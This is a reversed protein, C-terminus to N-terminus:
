EDYGSNQTLFAEREGTLRSECRLQNAGRIKADLSTGAAEVKCDATKRKIWARQLPRLEDQRASTLSNWVANIRQVALDNEAKAESLTAAGQEALAALEDGRARDEERRAQAESAQGEARANLLGDSQFSAAVVQGLARFIPVDGGFEALLTEGDDTPQVTYEFSTSFNNARKDVDYQAALEGVDNVGALSRAEEARQVLADGLTVTITAACFEKTSNPDDQTTRVASLAVKAAAATARLTSSTATTGAGAVSTRGAKVLADRVLTEVAARSEDSGCTVAPKGAVQSCECLTALVCAVWWRM